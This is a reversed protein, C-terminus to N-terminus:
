PGNDEYTKIWEAKNRTQWYDYEQITDFNLTSLISDRNVNINKIKELEFILNYASHELGIKKLYNFYDLSVKKVELSDKENFIINYNLLHYLEKNISKENIKPNVNQNYLQDVQNLINFVAVDNNEKKRRNWFKYYYSSTDKEFNYSVIMKTVIKNLSLGKWDFGDYNNEELSTRYENDSIFRKIGIKKIVNFTSLLNDSNRLWKDNHELGCCYKVSTIQTLFDNDFYFSISQSFDLKKRGL